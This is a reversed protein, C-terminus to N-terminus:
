EAFLVDNILGETFQKGFLNILMPKAPDNEKRYQLYVKQGKIIDNQFNTKVQKSEFLIKLYLNFYETFSNYLYEAILNESQRNKPLKSWILGPSFFKNVEDSMEEARPVILHFKNKLNIIRSLLDSDFQQELPLSPQFDLVLLHLHPLTVFDVGFFPMNYISSPIILFNLVSYSPSNICVARALKMRTNHVSWNFLQVHKKSKKPGFKSENFVYKSPLVNEISDYESLRSVIYKLFNSWRWDGKYFISKKIDQMLNIDKVLPLYTTRLLIKQGYIEM